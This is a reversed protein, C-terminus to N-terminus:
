SIITGKFKRSAILDGVRKLDLGNVIAVSIKHEHCFRSAVPDFPASLGPDWKDGVMKRYGSWSLAELPKAASHKRPDASYVYDINSVNVVQRAGLRTAIRCAVYDTSWGPKWGAAILVSGQPRVPLRLPSKIVVPHAVERFITRLLHGNLRTAHIGLWDLDEAAIGHRVKVAADIYHRATKGGGTVIVFKRGAKVGALIMKKLRNLFETDPGGSPVILSGGISLIIPSRQDLKMTPM